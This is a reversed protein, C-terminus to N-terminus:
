HGARKFFNTKIPASNSKLATNPDAACCLSDTMYIFTTRDRLRTQSKQLRMRQRRGPKERWPIEWALVSPDTTMIDGETQFERGDLDGGRQLYLGRHRM